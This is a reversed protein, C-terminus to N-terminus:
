GAVAPDTKRALAMQALARLYNRDNLKLVDTKEQGWILRTRM